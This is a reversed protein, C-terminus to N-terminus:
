TISGNFWKSSRGWAGREMSRAGQEMSLAGHEVSWAGHEVSRAEQEKGFFLVEQKTDIFIEYIQIKSGSFNLCGISSFIYYYLRHLKCL